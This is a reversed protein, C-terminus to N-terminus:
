GWRFIVTSGTKPWIFPRLPKSLQAVASSVTTLMVTLALVTATLRTPANM